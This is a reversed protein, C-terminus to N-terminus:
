FHWSRGDGAGGGGLSSCPMIKGAKDTGPTPCIYGHLIKGSDCASHCIPEDTLSLFFKYLNRLSKKEIKHM